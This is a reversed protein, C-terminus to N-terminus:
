GAGYETSEKEVSCNVHIKYELV